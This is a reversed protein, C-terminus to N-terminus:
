FQGKFPCLNPLARRLGLCDQLLPGFLQSWLDGKPLVFPVAFNWFGVQLRHLGEIRLWVAWLFAPRAPHGRDACVPDPTPGHAPEPQGPVEANPRTKAEGAGSDIVQGKADGPLFWWFRAGEFLYVGM